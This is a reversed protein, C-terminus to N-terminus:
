HSVIINKDAGISIIEDPNGIFKLLYSSLLLCTFLYSRLCHTRKMCTPYRFPYFMLSETAENANNSLALFILLIVNFSM